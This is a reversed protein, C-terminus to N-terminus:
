AAVERGLFVDAHDDYSYVEHWDVDLGLLVREAVVVTVQEYLGRRWANLRRAEIGLEECVDTLWPGRLDGVLSEVEQRQAVRQEILVLLPAVPVKALTGPPAQPVPKVPAGEAARKMRYNIRQEELHQRWREPDNRVQQRYRRASAQAKALNRERWRKSAARHLKRKHERKVADAKAQQQYERSLRLHCLKCLRQYRHKLLRHGREDITGKRRMIHFSNRLSKVKECEPCRRVRQGSKPDVWTMRTLVVRHYHAWAQTEVCTWCVTSRRPATREDRRRHTASPPFADRTKAVHCRLCPRPKNLRRLTSPSKASM